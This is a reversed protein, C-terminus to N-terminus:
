ALEVIDGDALVYDKTVRQGDFKGRGWVRAFRLREALDRHIVAALDLVTSGEAVVFPRARDPPKHPPKSYVRVIRLMRFIEGRLAEVNELTISSVALPRLTEGYLERVERWREAAGPLDLKAAVLRAKKEVVPAWPEAAPEGGVLRVKKEELVSLCDEIRELADECSVDVVFLAGDANRVVNSVWGEAHESSIPPLDVLQIRIDEYNMMAPVPARTTYPHPAVPVAVGTLAAVVSSKGSNPPGVVAVQGAGEREVHISFGRRRAQSQVEENLRALRRKLDAQLKETGKHKPIASLMRRLAALKEEATKARRFEQEAALYDPTLNAPM